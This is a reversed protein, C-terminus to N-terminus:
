AAAERAHPCYGFFGIALNCNHCLLRYEPPFGERIAERYVKVGCRRKGAATYHRRDGKVRGRVHDIGLFEGRAEGCCACRSGYGAIVEARLRANRARKKRAEGTESLPRGTRPDTM